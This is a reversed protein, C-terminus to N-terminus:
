PWCKEYRSSASLALAYYAAWRGAANAQNCRTTNKTGYEAQLVPKNAGTFVSYGDCESFQACQENIAGDFDPQLATLQDVDNKLFAALGKEHALAALARNYTLQESATLTNPDNTYGDVNDFEVGDFGDAVCNDVRAAILHRFYQFDQGDLWREDPWDPLVAGLIGNSDGAARRQQDIATFQSYDARFNEATGASVYCIAKAQGAPRAAKWAAIQAATVNDPDVDIM